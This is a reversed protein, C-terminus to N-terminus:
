YMPVIIVPLFVVLYRFRNFDSLKYNRGDTAPLNFDVAKSGPQLTYAM